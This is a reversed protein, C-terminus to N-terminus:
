EPLSNFVDYLPFLISKVPKDASKVKPPRELQSCKDNDESYDGCSADMVDGMLERLYGVITEVRNNCSKSREFVGTM